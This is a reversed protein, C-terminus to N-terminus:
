IIYFFLQYTISHDDFALMTAFPAPNSIVGSTRAASELIQKCRNPAAGYPLGITIFRRHWRQPRSMNTVQVSTLLKNPVVIIENKLTHLQTSRWNIELVRGMRGEFNVWDGEQYPREIQLALGSAISGLTDQFALGVVATLVVSGTLIGTLDVGHASLAITSAVVYLLIIGVDRVIQPIQIRRTRALFGDVLMVALGQVIGFLLVFLSLLHLLRHISTWYMGSFVVLTALWFYVLLARQPRKALKQIENDNAYFFRCGALAFFFIFAPALQSWLTNLQDLIRELISPEVAIKPIRRPSWTVFFDRKDISRRSIRVATAPDGRRTTQILTRRRQKIESEAQQLAPGTNFRHTVVTRGEEEPGRREVAGANTLMFFALLVLILTSFRLMNRSGNAGLWTMKAFFHGICAGACKFARNVHVQKLLYVRGPIDTALALPGSAVTTM